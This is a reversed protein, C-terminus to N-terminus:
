LHKIFMNYVEDAFCSYSTNDIRRSTKEIEINIDKFDVEIIKPAFKSKEMEHLLLMEKPYWVDLGCILYEYFKNTENWQFNLIQAKYLLLGVDYKDLVNPICNSPPKYQPASM